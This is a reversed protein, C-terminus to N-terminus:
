RGWNNLQYQVKYQGPKIDGNKLHMQVFQEEFADMIDKGHLKRGHTIVELRVQKARNIIRGENRVTYMISYGEPGIEKKGCGFFGYAAGSTALLAVACIMKNM